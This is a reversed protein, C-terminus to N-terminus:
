NGNQPLMALFRSFFDPFTKGTCDPNNIVLGPTKLGTVAFAMAMRHDNYTEITTPHLVGPYVKLGDAFEEVRAGLRQLETVIARLRETEKYRIHEVNRIIVPANAFPAIAALTQVLDSMNNMDVELGQLQAPGIVETYSETATVQCGMAALVEIFRADGQCSHRALQEVRVRGGTLAAAAFFYSANSADPEVPYHGPQYHQGAEIQFCNPAPQTVTVGFDAMVRCTIDIYSRSVLEGVVEIVTDAQAYPAIMLLASLQQSTQNAKLALHGGRFGNSHLVYPMFGPQGEFEVGTGAAQLITLMDAMPRERMRPVGDLRYSGHGLAVLATIFRAATGALGVFLDAQAAPIAGGSGTVEFRALRAEGSVAIGLKQLCDSFWYTDESFLANELVSHGEALAALMLARNTISKSGPVAVTADLQGDLYPIKISKVSTQTLTSM